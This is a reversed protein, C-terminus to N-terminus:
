PDDPAILPFVPRPENMARFAQEWQWPIWGSADVPRTPGKQKAM